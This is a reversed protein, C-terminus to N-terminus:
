GQLVLDVLPEITSTYVQEGDAVITTRHGRRNAIQYASTWYCSNSYQSASPFTIRAVPNTKNVNTVMTPPFGKCSAYPKLNQFRIYWVSPKRWGRSGLTNRGYGGLYRTRGERFVDECSGEALEYSKKGADDLGGKRNSTGSASTKCNDNM